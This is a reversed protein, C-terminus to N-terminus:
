KAVQKDAAITDCGAVTTLRAPWRLLLVNAFVANERGV